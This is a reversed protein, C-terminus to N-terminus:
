LKEYKAKEKPTMEAWKSGSDKAIQKVDLKADPAAKRANDMSEKNFFMYASIVGKPMVTGIEFEQAKGKKTLFTSKVGDSNIFYGM